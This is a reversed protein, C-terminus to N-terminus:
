TDDHTRVYHLIHRREAEMSRVVAVLIGILSIPIVIQWMMLAPHRPVLYRALMWIVLGFAGSFSAGRWAGALHEVHLDVLTRLVPSYHGRRVKSGIVREMLAGCLSHVGWLLFWSELMPLSKGQPMLVSMLIFEAITQAFAGVTERWDPDYTSLLSNTIQGTFSVVIIAFSALWFPIWLFPTVSSACLMTLVYAANAITISKMVSSLLILNDHTHNRIQERVDALTAIDPEHDPLHGRSSVEAPAAGRSKYDVVMEFATYCQSSCQPSCAFIGGM